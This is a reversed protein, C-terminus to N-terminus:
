PDATTAKKHAHVNKQPSIINSKQLKIQGLIAESTWFFNYDQNAM